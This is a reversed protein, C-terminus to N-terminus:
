TSAFAFEIISAYYLDFLAIHAICSLMNVTINMACNKCLKVNWANYLFIEYFLARYM